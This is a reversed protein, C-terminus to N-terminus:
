GCAGWGVTPRCGRGALTEELAKGRQGDLRGGTVIVDAPGFVPGLDAAVLGGCAGLGKEVGKTAGGVKVIPLEPPLTPTGGATRPM